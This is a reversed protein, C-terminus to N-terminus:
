GPESMAVLKEGREAVCSDPSTAQELAAEPWPLTIELDVPVDNLAGEFSLTATLREGRGSRRGYEIQKFVLPM